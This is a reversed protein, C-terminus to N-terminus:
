QLTSAVAIFAKLLDHIGGRKAPAENFRGSEVFGIFRSGRFGGANQPPRMSADEDAEAFLELLQIGGRKAPAENFSSPHSLTRNISASFGGANQPPRM